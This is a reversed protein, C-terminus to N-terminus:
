DSGRSGSARQQSRKSPEREDDGLLSDFLNGVGPLGRQEGFREILTVQPALGAGFRGLERGVCLQPLHNALTLGRAEGDCLSTAPQDGAVLPAAEQPLYAVSESFPAHEVCGSKNQQGNSLADHGHSLRVAELRKEFSAPELHAEPRESFKELPGLWITARRPAYTYCSRLHYGLTISSVSM